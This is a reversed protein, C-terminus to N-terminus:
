LDHLMHKRGILTSTAHTKRKYIGLTRAQKQNWLSRTYRNKAAAWFLVYCTPAYVKSKGQNEQTKKRSNRINIQSWRQLVNDFINPIDSLLETLSLRKAWISWISLSKSWISWSRSWLDSIDNDMDSINSLDSLDSLDHGLDDLTISWIYWSRSWRTQYILYIM